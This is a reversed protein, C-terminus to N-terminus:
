NTDFKLFGDILHIVARNSLNNSNAVDVNVTGSKMDTVQMSGLSNTISIAATAGSEQQLLTLYGGEKKGDTVVTEKQLIHYRIFNAVKDKDEPSSPKSGTM